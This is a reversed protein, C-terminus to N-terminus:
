SSASSHGSLVAVRYKLKLFTEEIPSLAETLEAENRLWSGVRDLVRSVRRIKLEPDVSGALDISDLIFECFELQSCTFAYISEKRKAQPALFAQAAVPAARTLQILQDLAAVDVPKLIYHDFGADACREKIDPTGYGTLAALVPQRVQVQSRVSQAVKIGDMHPMAIDLLVLDPAFPAIQSLAGAGDSATQVEHGMMRLLVTTTLLIDRHDDVVLVRVQGDPRGAVPTESAHMGM